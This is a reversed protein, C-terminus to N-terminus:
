ILDDDDDDHLDIIRSPEDDEDDHDGVMGLGSTVDAGLDAATLEDPSVDDAPVYRLRTQGVRIEDGLNLQQQHVKAGNVLTGAASGLDRLHRRGDLEFIVAHVASAQDDALVVDCEERTGILVARALLPAHAVGGNIELAAAPARDEDATAPDAASNEPTFGSACHLNYPGVKVVDGTGLDTERVSQGNVFLRNRSALDRIYIRDKEKVILAHLKSVEKSALPLHVGWRRGILVVAKTLAVPARSVVAAATDATAAIKLIPFFRAAAHKSSFTIAAM